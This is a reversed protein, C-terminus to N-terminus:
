LWWGKVNLKWYTWGVGSFKYTMIRDADVAWARRVCYAHAAVQPRLTCSGFIVPVSKPRLYFIDAITNTTGVIHLNVASAGAPVLASMDLDHDAGDVILDNLDWDSAAHPGRTIYTPPIGIAEIILDILWQM